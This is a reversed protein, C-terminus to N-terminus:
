PLPLTEVFASNRYTKEYFMDSFGLILLRNGYDGALHLFERVSTGNPGRYDHREIENFTHDLHLVFGVRENQQHGSWYDGGLYYHGSKDDYYLDNPVTANRPLEFEHSIPNTAMIRSIWNRRTGGSPQKPFQGVIVTEYEVVKCLTVSELSQPIETYNYLVNAGSVSASFIVVAKGNFTPAPFHNQIYLPALEKASGLIAFYDLTQADDVCPIVEKQPQFFINIPQFRNRVTDFVGSTGSVKTYLLPRAKQDWFLSVGVFPDLNREKFVDLAIVAPQLANANWVPTKYTYTKEGVVKTTARGSAITSEELKVKFNIGTANEWFPKFSAFLYGRNGVRVPSNAGPTSLLPGKEIERLDKDLRVWGRETPAAEGLSHSTAAYLQGSDDLFPRELHYSALRPDPHRRVEVSHELVVLPTPNQSVAVKNECASLLILFVVALFSRIKM